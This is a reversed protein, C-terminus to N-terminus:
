GAGPKPLERREPAEFVEEVSADLLQQRRTQCHRRAKRPEGALRRCLVDLQAPVASVALLVEELRPRAARVAEELVVHVQVLDSLNQRDCFNRLSITNSITM